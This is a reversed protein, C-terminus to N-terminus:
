RPRYYQMAEPIYYQIADLRNSSTPHTSLFEPPRGSNSQRSMNVWFDYAAQPHYGAQAMLILGIRDAEYEQERSFPLIYGVNAGLGLAIQMAQVAMGSQQGIAAMAAQQGMQVVLMNSVREGGHRAVAHAIEHAIVAALQDPNHAYEFIGTYVFVKGGPLCSANAVDPKDIVFFEWQFGPENTVRAINWGVENVPNVYRPDRSVPEQALMERAAQAGLSIEQSSSLLMLQSRGTFPAQACGTAVLLLALATLWIKMHITQRQM